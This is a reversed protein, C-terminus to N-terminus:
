PAGGDTLWAEIDALVVRADLPQETDTPPKEENLIRELLRCYAVQMSFPSIMLQAADNYTLAGAAVAETTTTIIQQWTM